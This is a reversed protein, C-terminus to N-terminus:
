KNMGYKDNWFKYLRTIIRKKYKDEIVDYGYFNDKFNKLVKNFEVPEKEFSDFDKIDWLPTDYIAQTFRANIETPLNLYNNMIEKRLKEDIEKSKKMLFQIDDISKLEKKNAFAKGKSIHNDYAHQFEHLLTSNFKFYLKTYVRGVDEKVNYLEQFLEPKCYLVIQNSKFGYAGNPKNNDNTIIFSIQVPNKYFIDKFHEDVGNYKINMTTIRPLQSLNNNEKASKSFVEAIKELTHDTILELNKQSEMSEDLITKDM